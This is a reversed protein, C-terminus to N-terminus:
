HGFILWAAILLAALAGVLLSIKLRSYPRDGVVKATVGNVLASRARDQIGYTVLWAPLLMLSYTERSYATTVRHVRQDDGGIDARVDREIQRSMREKAKEFGAAPDLDYAIPRAGPEANQGLPAVADLPWHPLKRPLLSCGPVVVAAFSRQVRGSARSWETYSELDTSTESKGESDVRTTVVTRYQTVGREGSYDSVCHAAFSWYPLYVQDLAAPRASRLAKPAFRRSSLWHTFAARAGSEDVAFPAAADPALREAGDVPEVLLAGCADCRLSFRKDKRRSRDVVSQCAVCRSVPEVRGGRLLGSGALPHRAVPRPSDAAAQASVGRGSM